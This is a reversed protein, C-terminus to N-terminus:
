QQVVRVPAGDRLAGRGTAGLTVLANDSLGSTIEVRMANSLGTQVERRQLHEGVIEYVYRRGDDDQRVAERPVTLANQHQATTVVVNVNVNPLLKRDPNEIHCTIEGVTRPGRSTVTTPLRTLTGEWTRGPLADWTITVRQGQQLRGIEPEDVFARVQMKSLDAVQVLLDGPNVYAGQRVPLYYVTGTLTSRINTQRLLDQAAAYAAQAEAQEAKVRAIEAPSYRGTQKQELLTVQAQARKLRNEAEEVEAASAAGRQQLRRMAELNRRAAEAETRAKVLEARITLLEEQTGGSQVAKLAAEAARLRTLARAAQARAEADDLQLLLQGPRVRDGEHVLLRKVTTALPAHAEFNQVPEAKGNTSITSSINERRAHTARVAVESGRLSAFAALLLVAAAILGGIQLVRKNKPAL